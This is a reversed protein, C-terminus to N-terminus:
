RDIFDRRLVYEQQRAKMDKLSAPLDVLVELDSNPDIQVKRTAKLQSDLQKDISGLTALNSQQLPQLQSVLDKKMAEGYPVAFSATALVQAACVTAVCLSIHYLRKRINFM